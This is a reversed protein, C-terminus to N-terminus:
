HGNGHETRGGLAEWIQEVNEYQRDDPLRGLWQRVWGPADHSRAVTVLVERRAPFASPELYRALDARAEVEEPPLMGPPVDLEPRLDNGALVEPDDEEPRADHLYGAPEDLHPDRMAEDVNAGHKDSQQM